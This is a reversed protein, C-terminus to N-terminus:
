EKEKVEGQQVADFRNMLEFADAEIPKWKKGTYKFNFYLTVENSRGHNCLVVELRDGPKLDLNKDFADASNLTNLLLEENIDFMPNFMQPLTPMGVVILDKNKNYRHLVWYHNLEEIDVKEDVCTCFKIKDSVKCM